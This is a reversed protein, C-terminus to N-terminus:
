DFLDGSSDCPLKAEVKDIHLMAMAIEAMLKEPRMRAFPFVTAAELIAGPEQPLYHFANARM